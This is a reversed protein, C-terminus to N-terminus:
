RVQPCRRVEDGPTASDAAFLLYLFQKQAEKESYSVWSHEEKHYNPAPVQMDVLRAKGRLTAPYYAFMARCLEKPNAGLTTAGGFGAAGFFKNTVRDHRNVGVVIRDIRASSEPATAYKKFIKASTAPAILGVRINTHPPFHYGTSDIGSVRAHYARFVSDRLNGFVGSANWLANGVVLAGLSHAIVRVPAASDVAALLRRLELGIVPATYQARGWATRPIGGDGEMGDWAVQLFVPPDGMAARAVSNSLVARRAKEIQFEYTDAPVNFGHVLVVM